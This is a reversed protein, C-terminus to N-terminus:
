LGSTRATVPIRLGTIAATLPGAAPAPAPRANAQSRRTAAADAANEIANAPTARDASVPADKRSGRSTPCPRADRM